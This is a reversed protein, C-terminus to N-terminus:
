DNDDNDRMESRFGILAWDDVGDSCIPALEESARM